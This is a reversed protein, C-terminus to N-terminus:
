ADCRRNALRIRRPAGFAHRLTRRGDLDGGGVHHYARVNTTRAASLEDAVTVVVPGILHQTADYGPAVRQWWVVLQDATLTEPQGGWPSTYDTAIETTFSARVTDWDLDDVAHLM